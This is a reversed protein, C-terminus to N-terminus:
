PVHVMYYSGFKKLDYSGLKDMNGIAWMKALNGSEWTMHSMKEKICADSIIFRDLSGVWGM